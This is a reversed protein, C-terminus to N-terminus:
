NLNKEEKQLLDENKPILSLDVGLDGQLKKDIGRIKQYIFDLDKKMTILIKEYYTYNIKLRTYKQQSLKIIEDLIQNSNQLSSWTKKQNKIIKQVESEDLVGSLANLLSSSFVQEDKEENKLEQTNKNSESGKNPQDLPEKKKIIQDTM